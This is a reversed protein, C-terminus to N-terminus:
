VLVWGVNKTQGPPRMQEWKSGGLFVLIPVWHLLHHCRCLYVAEKVWVVMPLPSKLPPILLYLQSDKGM